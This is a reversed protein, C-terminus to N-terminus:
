DLWTTTQINWALSDVAKTYNELDKVEATFEESLLFKIVDSTSNKTCPEDSPPPYHSGELTDNYYVNVEMRCGDPKVEIFKMRLGYGEFIESAIEISNREM